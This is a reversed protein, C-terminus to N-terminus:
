KLESKFNLRITVRNSWITFLAVSSATLFCLLYVFVQCNSSNFFMPLHSLKFYLLYTGAWQGGVRFSHLHNKLYIRSSVWVSNVLKDMVPYLSPCFGIFLVVMMAVASPVLRSAVHHRCGGCGRSRRAFFFHPVVHIDLQLLCCAPLFIIVHWKHGWFQSGGSSDSMM